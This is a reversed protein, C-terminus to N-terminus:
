AGNCSKAIHAKGIPFRLDDVEVLQIFAIGILRIASVMNPPIAAPWSGHSNYDGRQGTLRNVRDLHCPPGILMAIPAAFAAGVVSQDGACCLRPPKGNFPTGSRFRLANQIGQCVSLQDHGQHGFPMKRLGSMKDHQTAYLVLFNKHGVGGTAPATLFCPVQGDNQVLGASTGAGAPRKPDDASVASLYLLLCRM